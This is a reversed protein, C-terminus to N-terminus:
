SWNEIQSCNSELQYLTHSVTRIWRWKNPREVLYLASYKHCLPFWFQTIQHHYSFNLLLSHWRTVDINNVPTPSLKHKHCIPSASLRNSISTVSKESVFLWKIICDGFDSFSDGDYRWCCVITVLM